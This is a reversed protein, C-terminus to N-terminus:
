GKMARRQGIKKATKALQARKRLTENDSHTAKELKASSINKGEKAHLSKRLQGHSGAFAEQM